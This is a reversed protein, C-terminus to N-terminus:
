GLDNRHFREIEDLALMLELKQKEEVKIEYKEINPNGRRFRRNEGELVIQRGKAEEIEAKARAMFLINAMIFIILLALAIQCLIELIEATSMEESKEVGLTKGIQELLEEM